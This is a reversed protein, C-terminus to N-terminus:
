HQEALALKVGLWVFLGGTARKLWQSVIPNLKLRASARATFPALGHIGLSAGTM